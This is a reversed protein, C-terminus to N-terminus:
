KTPTLTGVLAPVGNRAVRLHTVALDCVKGVLAPAKDFASQDPFDIDLQITDMIPSEGVDLIVYTGSYKQENTSKSKWPRPTFGRIQCTLKM